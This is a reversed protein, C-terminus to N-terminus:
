QKDWWVRANWSDTGGMEQIVRNYEEKNYSAETIPYQLRRPITQSDITQAGYQASPKLEPYGTRRWNAFGEPSNNLHLIWLQENIVKIRSNEAAPFPNAVLYETIQDSSVAFNKDYNMLINMAAAVGNKYHQEASVADALTWRVNAEALLLEVEAYSIIIGPTEGKLFANNIQPRCAKDEWKETLKSMYGSPWNDWWFFGPKVPQFKEIGAETLMEETLDIRNFPDNPSSENYCRAIIFLRPDNRDHLMDWLTSCIYTSPYPERGRWFQSIGNRRFENVDWDFYNEYKIMPDDASSKFVGASSSLIDAVETKATEPSVKVLRMALRLRLSNAFRKWKALDGNYIVDGTVTGGESSLLDGAEKLEKLFDQYISEQKDYKPKVVGAIYGKGAETYPIDGYMDTLIMSYYVRFIRALSLVNAYQEQVETNEIVDALNKLPSAYTRSWTKEFQSNYKRYQGGYNTTNWEGQLHQIFASYYITNTEVLEVDGFAYLQAYTLQSNPNTTGSKTPNTNMEEFDNCATLWVSGVIGITYLAKRFHKKM